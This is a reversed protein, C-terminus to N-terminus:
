TIWNLSIIIKAENTLPWRKSVKVFEDFTIKGDQNQDMTRSLEQIIERVRYGPLPLNAVKFLENLEDTSIYGNSDVDSLFTFPWIGSLDTFM